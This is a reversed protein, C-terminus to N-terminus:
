REQGVLGLRVAEASAEARSRADLKRLIASVHHDVPKPPLFLREAIEWNRLGEGVLGLVELGGRTLNAPNARTSARPGRVVGRAGLERLRRAVIVAAPQAGLAQLEDHARRLLEEDEADALALAAEYPSGLERWAVAAGACDGALELGYPKETDTAVTEELGARRRWTALEAVLDPIKFELALNLALETAEAIADLDGQLWAAEARAAAVPALRFLEGTPKAIAWAEELLEGSGPGGRRARVLALVVLTLIRPSISTRPTRLVLAATDAADSWRGEHLEQQARHALIYIRMLEDGRDTCYALGEEVYRRALDSRRAEVAVITLYNLALAAQHDLGERRARDVIQELPAADAMHITA